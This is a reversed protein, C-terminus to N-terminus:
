RVVAADGNDAALVTAGRPLVRVLGPGIVEAEIVAHSAGNQVHIREGAAGSELAMGEGTVLLGSAVLQLNVTAGRLVETPRAVDTAALPQGTPVQRRMQMGVVQDLSRLADGRVLAARIRGMHVDDPKVVMGVGLRAAAVPLDVMEDAQGGIRMVIPQMGAGNVSLTGTFRGTNPDYDLQSVVPKPLVDAPVIPATFGPLEISSDPSVGSATLADRVAAVADERPLPRGPWELVAQDASSAPRWDVDFQRAIASLQAAGVTIRGGPGPGPGLVRDANPGADDFLDHLYVNPGHLTTVPKLNAAAAPIAACCLLMTAFLRM